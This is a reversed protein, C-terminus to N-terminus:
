ARGAIRIEVQGARIAVGPQDIVAELAPQDAVMAAERHRRRRLARIALRGVGENRDTGAHLPQLLLRPLQKRAAADEHERAVEDFRDLAQALLQGVDGFAAEVDDDARLEDGFAMMKGLEVQDAHDIGIEAQGVAIRACGLARELQQMLDDAAGPALLAAADAIQLGVLGVM